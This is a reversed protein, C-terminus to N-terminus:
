QKEAVVFVIDYLNLYLDWNLLGSNKLARYLAPQQHKINLIIYAITDLSRYMGEYRCCRVAFGYRQLLRTLTDKSFYHLHTPPHIQRWKGGRFRAVVSGIDGTTVAVVGGRNMSAALKELYLHPSQLHEITDWLCAVDIKTQVPHNLFDGAHVPLHLTKTAYGVADRSIDIGEVSAFRDRAVSLFFGYAAGIEFLHKGAPDSIYRLITELRIRFHKEILRREAVYDKYEEGAFYNASYLAELDHNSLSVDATIFNCSGCALLGAMKCKGLTGGCVLCTSRNM